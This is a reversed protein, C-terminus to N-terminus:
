RRSEPLIYGGIWSARLETSGVLVGPRQKDDHNYDQSLLSALLCEVSEHKSTQGSTTPTIEKIHDLLSGSATECVNVCDACLPSAVNM